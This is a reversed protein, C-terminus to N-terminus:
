LSWVYNQWMTPNLTKYEKLATRTLTKTMLTNSGRRIKITVATDPEGVLMNYVEEKDLGSTPVGDVALIVDGSQLHAKSAPTDPFVHNIRPSPDKRTDIVFKLGIIGVNDIDDNKTNPSLKETDAKDTLVVPSAASRSQHSQQADIWGVSILLMAPVILIRIVPTRAAIAFM